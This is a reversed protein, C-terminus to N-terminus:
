ICKKMQKSCIAKDYILKKLIDKFPPSPTTKFCNKLTNNYEIKSIKKNKYQEYLSNYYELEQKILKKNVKDKLLYLWYLMNVKSDTFKDIPLEKYFQSYSQRCYSCPLTYKLYYFTKVFACKINVHEKNELNIKKPYAGLIMYFLSKWLVPGFKKTSIAHIKNIETKESM